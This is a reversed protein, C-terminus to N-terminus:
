FPQSLSQNLVCGFDADLRTSLAKCRKEHFVLRLNTHIINLNHIFKHIQRCSGPQAPSLVGEECFQRPQEFFAVSRNIRSKRVCFCSEHFFNIIKIIIVRQFIKSSSKKGRIWEPSTHQWSHSSATGKTPCKM